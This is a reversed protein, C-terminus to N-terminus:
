LRYLYYNQLILQCLNRTMSIAVLRAAKQMGAHGLGCFYRVALDMQVSKIILSHAGSQQNHEVDFKGQQGEMVKGDAYLRVPDGDAGHPDYDWTVFDTGNGGVSCNFIARGDVQAVTDVPATVISQQCTVATM